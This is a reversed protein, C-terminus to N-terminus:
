ELLEEITKWEDFLDAYQKVKKINLGQVKLLAQIDALDQLRRSKDNIYAQIKLGIIGEASVVNIDFLESKSASKLMDLSLPRNALLIDLFGPGDFQMVETSEFLLRFGNKILLEKVLDKQSGDILIDIDKTARHIGHAGLAFGGILAFKIKKEGLSKIVLQLTKRLNFM